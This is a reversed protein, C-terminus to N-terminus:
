PLDFTNPKGAVLRYRQLGLPHDPSLKKLPPQAGQPVLLEASMGKPVTVTVKHGADQQEAAFHIPGRVTNATLNVSPLDGLQPRVVCKEFGPKAPRIGAVDMFMEYLPSVACHSWQDMSDTRAKWDEQITNNMAVSAMSAWRTRFERLVVDIRGLKALAWLRWNANAPYSLGMEPPCEALMKLAAATNGGLCMDFLISMSLARDHFRPGSEEALWPLNDVFAGHKESWYTKVVAAEIKKSLRVFYRAKANEGFAKCMEALACRLMAAAYLNFACRKHKQKQFGDHDMWVAPIGTDEVPLLGDERIISELYEAFRLLRPFPEKLSDVDGTENYHNYCDFTFGISHDILPGWKTAGVQRQSMRALRDYAPWCDLFYGDLTLGQSFTRLFRAPHRTEGFVYRVAHLQHGVDGSYQQRERGMGDVNTEQASNMLTNLAANVVKQIVADGCNVKAEVPWNYVRRRAGVNSVTVPRTANRIHLQMWRLSEYDYCELRNEGERCIFRAWRYWHNDLWPDKAPDHSEQTIVEVITGAPANITFYPWGVLQEAFEFTAGHAVNASTAPFEWVGESKQKAVAEKKIRFSDPVRFDFWDNPDRLWEVKFSDVLGKAPVEYERMPPIERSMLASMGLEPSSDNAYDNYRSSAAPKNAPHDFKMPPIWRGDTTYGATNWGHPYLRADFEEQLSRLYWRKYQGPRRSRDLCCLWKEDSDVREKRGDGYELELNFIFGPKGTPWTGDGYGYYLVEAGIVNDGRTFFPLLDIPDADLWRPDCPAPGWQVRKGNVTLLYRSDATIWGVAKVPIDKLSVARRFLVFTNALTRQSPLWIWSAPSLDIPQSHESKQPNM